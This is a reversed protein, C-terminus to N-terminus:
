RDLLRGFVVRTLLAAHDDADINEPMKPLAMCSDAKATTAETSSEAGMAPLGALGAMMGAM